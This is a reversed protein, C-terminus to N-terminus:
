TNMYNQWIGVLEKLSVNYKIEKSFIERNKFFIDHKAFVSMIISM